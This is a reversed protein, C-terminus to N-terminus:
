ILTDKIIQILKSFTDENEKYQYSNDCVMKKNHYIEGRDTIFTHNIRNQKIKVIMNGFCKSDYLFDILMANSPLVSIICQKMEEITFKKRM